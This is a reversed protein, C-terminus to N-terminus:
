FSAVAKTSKRLKKGSLQIWHAVDFVVDSSREGWLQSFQAPDANMTLVTPLARAHRFRILEEFIRKKDESPNLNCEDLVLFDADQVRKLVDDASMGDSRGYRSQIEAFLESLRIYVSDLGESGRANVIAAALGTKGLGLGGQLVLWLRAEPSYEEAKPHHMISAAERLSFPAARAALYAAAAALGKGQRMDPPLEWYSAFSLKQYEAPLGARKLANRAQSNRVDAAAGCDPAPCLTLKGFRPHDVPLNQAIWGLGNCVECVPGCDDPGEIIEWLALKEQLEKITRQAKSNM